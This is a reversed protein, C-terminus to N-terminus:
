SPLLRSATCMRRMASFAKLKSHYDCFAVAQERMSRFRHIYELWADFAVLVSSKEATDFHDGYSSDDDGSLYSDHLRRAWSTFAIRMVRVHVREACFTSAKWALKKRKLSKDAWRKWLIFAVRKLKSSARRRASPLEEEAIAFRVRRRRESNGVGGGVSSGDNRLSAQQLLRRRVRHLPPTYGVLIALPLPAEAVTM